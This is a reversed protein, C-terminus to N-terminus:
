LLVVTSTQEDAGMVANSIGMVERFIREAAKIDKVVWAIYRAFYLLKNIPQLNGFNL